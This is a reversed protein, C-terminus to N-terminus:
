PAGAGRLCRELCRPCLLFCRDLCVAEQLKGGLCPLSVSLQSTDPLYVYRCSYIFVHLASWPLITCPFLLPLTVAPFHGLSGRKSQERPGQVTTRFKSVSERDRYHKSVVNLGHEKLVHTGSM